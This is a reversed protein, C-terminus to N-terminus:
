ASAIPALSDYVHLLSAKEREWNFHKLVADRGNRGMRRAREQDSALSTMAAAIAQPDLPDVCIGCDFREVIDRWLPFNSAIVPIGASMYEFLKNPQANVHNPEPYFLVLGAISRGLLKAVDSRGLTGLYEVHQWGSQARLRERLAETEIPGAVRLTHGSLDCAQVMESASRIASVGGVYCFGSREVGEAPSVPLVDTGPEALEDLFPYNNVVTACANLKKFREGIFPTAAVVASMRRAAFDEFLEFTHAVTGRLWVPIWHKSVIDRPVDEHTDYIVVAGEMRLMLAFPLLDPDHFQYIDARQQRASRYVRAATVLFRKLRGGSGQEIRVHRVASCEEPLDGQIVVVVDHGAEAAASAEKRVIRIDNARHATSFHCIRAM